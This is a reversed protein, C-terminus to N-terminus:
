ESGDEMGPVHGVRDSQRPSTTSCEYAVWFSRGDGIPFCFFVEMGPMFDVPAFVQRRVGYLTSINFSLFFCDKGDCVKVCADQFCVGIALLRVTCSFSVYICVMSGIFRNRVVAFVYWYDSSPVFTFFMFILGFPIVNALFFPFYIKVSIFACVNTPLMYLVLDAGIYGWIM